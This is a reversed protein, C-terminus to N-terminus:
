NPDAKPRQGTGIGITERPTAALSCSAPRAARNTENTEGRMQM